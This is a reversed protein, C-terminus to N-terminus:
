NNYEIYSLNGMAEDIMTICYNLHSKIGKDSYRKVAKKLDKKLDSLTGM